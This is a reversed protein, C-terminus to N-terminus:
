NGFKNNLTVLILRNKNLYDLMNHNFFKLQFKIHDHVYDRTSILTSFIQTVITDLFIPVRLL